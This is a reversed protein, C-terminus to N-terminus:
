RSNAKFIKYDRRASEIRFNVILNAVLGLFIVSASFFIILSSIILTPLHLIQGTRYFELIPISVLFLGGIIGLAGFVSYALLPRWTVIMKLITFLIRIGDVYTNLKSSSNAPRESYNSNFNYVRAGVISSYINLNAEFNNPDTKLVDKFFKIAIFYDSKYNCINGMGIKATLNEPEIILVKNFCDLALEFKFNESLLKVKM